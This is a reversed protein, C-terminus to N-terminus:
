AASSSSSNVPVQSLNTCCRPLPQLHTRLALSSARPLRRQRECRSDSSPGKPTHPHALAVPTKTAPPNLPAERSCKSWLVADFPALQGALNTGVLKDVPAQQFGLLGDPLIKGHPDFIALQERSVFSLCDTFHYAVNFGL